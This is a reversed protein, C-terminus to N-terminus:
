RAPPSPTSSGEADRRRRAWRRLRPRRDAVENSVTERPDITGKLKEWLEEKLRAFEADGRLEDLRPRAFPVELVDLVRGPRQSFVVIRDALFLAEEVDHTVFIVTKRDAAWLRLLESQMILRTQADVSGFPEDMLLISPEIALARALGVRQQMGGSLQSPYFDEFGALGVLELWRRATRARDARSMSRSELGLMVNAAVTRWPFLNFGQFVFGLDPRPGRMPTGDILIRGSSPRLLGDIIRLL